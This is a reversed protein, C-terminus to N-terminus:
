KEAVPLEIKQQYVKGSAKGDRFLQAKVECDATIELPQSYLESHAAPLTGDTTYRIEINRASPTLTVLAARRASDVEVKGEVSFIHKAFRYGLAEYRDTLAIARAVFDEYNKQADPTWAVEALAAMRPLTMYQVHNFTKIYEAWVNAQVGKVMKAENASLGETPNLSYVKAVSVFGGIGFPEQEIDRSQYYDLYVYNNPTMIVENGLKAAQIGGKTGRWSMITASKSIGGELIEDWGIIKKGKGNLYKEIRHVFYSQLENEDKLNEKKIRAQCKKCKKWAAKPCEDGGIHIYESPFLAAVEDLVGELFEFTKENGACYVEEFVGWRGEVEYPGGSCGLQPYSALAAVAHGPLEIEPIVTIYRDAAYQIIEKIQEQTYFGGYPQGDYKGSNRGIVTEKRISGVKTLEPYKRIEIRWGQDDTLHWHFRNFKHMALMDIYTKISDLPFIHRCVDLMMGRYAFRPEDQVKVNQIDIGNMLEGKEVRAPLLQRLSQFAYFVGQSSGAKINVSKGDVNLEYAEKKLSPEITINIAGDKAEGETVKLAGGLSKATLDQFFRYAPALDGAGKVVNIVAQPKLTFHGNVVELSVPQPIINVQQKSHCSILMTSCVAALFILSFRKM